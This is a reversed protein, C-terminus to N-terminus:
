TRDTKRSADVASQTTTTIGRYFVVNLLSSIPLVDAISVLGVQDEGGQVGRASRGAPMAAEKLDKAIANSPNLKLTKNSATDLRPSGAGEHYMGRQFALWISQRCGRHDTIRNSIVKEM